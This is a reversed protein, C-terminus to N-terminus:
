FLGPDILRRIGPVLESDLGFGEFFESFVIIVTIGKKM